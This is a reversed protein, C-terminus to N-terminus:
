PNLDCEPCLGHSFVADTHESVYTEVGSWYGKDDRIKKCSACIPLMGTLQKVNTLAEQLEKNKKEVEASYRQLEKEAHRRETIDSVALCCHNAGGNVGPLIASKVQAYFCVDKGTVMRFVQDQPKDTRFIQRLDKFFTDQDERDVFRFFSSNRLGVREMALMTAGTLNVEKISGKEDLTFYGIPAFDYLAVYRDHVTMLESHMRNLEDNQMELEIQHVQLEHAMIRVDAENLHAVSLNGAKLKLLAQKRLETPDNM